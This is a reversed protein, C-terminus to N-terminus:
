RDGVAGLATKTDKLGHGTLVSVVRAGSDIVGQEIARDLGAITAASAPEVFVGETTGLRSMAEEIARDSVAVTTGGSERIAEVAARKQHPNTVDISDACTNTATETATSVARHIATAARAQVGLLRPPSDTFGCDAFLKWGRWLGAITGGNGVPVVAWDAATETALEYGLTRTGLATYPNAGASRDVVARRERERQCAAVADQYGGSVTDLAAGCIRQQVAKAAPIRDPVFLSCERDARAAYAAISAAANGTSACVIDRDTEAAHSALIASGRDKASGTPNSGELKLELSIGLSDGLTAADILPTGGEGLTVRESVPFLSEYRWLSEESGASSSQKTSAENAPTENGSHERDSDINARVWSRDYVPEFVTEDAPCRARTGPTTERGCTPCRFVVGDAM